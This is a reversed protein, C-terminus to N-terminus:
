RELEQKLSDVRSTISVLTAQGAVVSEAPAGPVALARLARSASGALATAEAFRGRLEPLPRAHGLNAVVHDLDDRLLELEVDYFNRTLRSEDDGRALTLGEAASTGISNLNVRLTDQNAPLFTALAIAFALAAVVVAAVVTQLARSHHEARRM